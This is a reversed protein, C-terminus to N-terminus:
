TKEIMDPRITLGLGPGDPLVMYGDKDLTPAGQFVSWGEFIDATPPEHIFEVIPANPWSAALHLACINGFRREYTAGHPTVRMNYAAALAAIQRSQTPGVRLIEPM